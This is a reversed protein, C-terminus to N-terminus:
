RAATQRGHVRSYDTNNWFDVRHSCHTMLDHFSYLDVAQSEEYICTPTNGYLFFEGTGRAGNPRMPDLSHAHKLWCEGHARGGLCGALDACWVWVNCRPESKCAACCEDFTELINDGGFKVVEEGNYEAHEEMRCIRQSSANSEHDYAKGTTDIAQSSRNADIIRLNGQPVRRIIGRAALLLNIVVILGVIAPWRRGWLGVQRGRRNIKM